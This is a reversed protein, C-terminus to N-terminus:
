LTGCRNAITIAITSSIANALNSNGVDHHIHETVAAKVGQRVTLDCIMVSGLKMVTFSLCKSGQHWRCM